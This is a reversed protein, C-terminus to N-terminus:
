GSSVKQHSYNPANNLSFKPAEVEVSQRLIFPMWNQCAIGGTHAQTKKGKFTFSNRCITRSFHLQRPFKM